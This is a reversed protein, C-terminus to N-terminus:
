KGMTSATYLTDRRSKCMDEARGLVKKVYTIMYM